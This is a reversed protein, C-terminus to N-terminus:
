SAVPRAFLDSLLRTREALLGPDRAELALRAVPETGSPRVCFWWDAYDVRIGDADAIEARSCGRAVRGKRECTIEVPEPWAELAEAAARRCTAAADRKDGFGFRPEDAPRHWPGPLSRVLQALKGESLAHLLHLTTILSSDCSFFDSYYYHGADEGAFVMQPHERM